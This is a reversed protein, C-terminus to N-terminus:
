FGQLVLGYFAWHPYQQQLYNLQQQGFPQEHQWIALQTLDTLAATKPHWVLVLHQEPVPWNGAWQWGNASHQFLESNIVPQALKAHQPLLEPLASNTPAAAARSPLLLVSLQAKPMDAPATLRLECLLHAPLSLSSGSLLQYQRAQPAPKLARQQCRAPYAGPGTSLMSDILMTGAAKAANDANANVVAHQSPPTQWLSIQWLQTQWLLFLLASVAVVGFGIAVHRLNASIAGKTVAKTPNDRNQSLPLAQGPAEASAARAPFLLSLAQEVQSFGHVSWPSLQSLEPQNSSACFLYLRVGQQQYRQLLQQSQAMKEALQGIAGLAGHHQVEASAWVLADGPGPEGQGLEGKAFAAHALYVALQWSNGQDIRASVDLRFAGHGFTKHILGSGKRVFQHYASSVALTTTTNNLCIVSQVDADEAVLSLIQAPGETTPIIFFLAM